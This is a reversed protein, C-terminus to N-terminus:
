FPMMGEVYKGCALCQVRVQGQETSAEVEKKGCFPCTHNDTRGALVEDLIDQWMSLEEYDHESM